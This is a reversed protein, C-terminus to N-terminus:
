GGEAEPFRGGLGYRDLKNLLGQRSLGLRRASRSRNGGEAQLADGIMRRELADVAASLTGEVGAEATSPLGALGLDEPQLEAQGAGLVAARQVCHRLERLNGPWAHARLAARAGASLPPPAGLGDLQRLFHEALVLVDDGRARLPPLTLEVGRLRWYLDERFNGSRVAAGLDRNTASLVRVDVRVPRQGGVPLLDGTELVRLLTVQVPLPLDGVEDLFITGGHAQQFLGDRARDAGTFAGREHGFLTSEILTPPLAGCNVTVLPGAARRSRAHVRRAFLEKGTGPEGLIAVPLASPAVKDALQLAALLPPSQGLIADAPAPLQARLAEVEAELQRMRVARKLVVLLEDPDVPKRLLDHAGRRVADLAVGRGGSGTLVIVKLGPAVRLLQDLLGLGEEPRQTPPLMLDLLVLDPPLRGVAALAGAVDVAEAVAYGEAELLPRLVRRLAADDEVWLM